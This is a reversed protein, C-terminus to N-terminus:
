SPCFGLGAQITALPYGRFMFEEWFGLLIFAILWAVASSALASGHLALGHFSAAGVLCLLGIELASTGLGFLMGIWFHSRFSERLPLGYDAFSRQEIRTMLWAVLLASSFFLAGQVIFDRAVFGNQEQFHFVHTAIWLLGQGLLWVLLIFIAFRWGSRIGKPGVFIKNM